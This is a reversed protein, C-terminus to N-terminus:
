REGELKRRWETPSWGTRTQRRPALTEPPVHGTSTRPSPTTAGKGSRELETM